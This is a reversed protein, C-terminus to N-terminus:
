RRELSSTGRPRLKGLDIRKRLKGRAREPEDRLPSVWQKTRLSQCWENQLARPSPISPSRSIFAEYAKIGRDGRIERMGRARSRRSPEKFGRAASGSPVDCPHPYRSFQLAIHLTQRRPSVIEDNNRRKKPLL